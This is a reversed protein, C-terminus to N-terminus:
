TRNVQIETVLNHITTGLDLPDYDVGVRVVGTSGLLDAMYNARELMQDGTYEVRFWRAEGTGLFYLIEKGPQQARWLSGRQVGQYDNHAM